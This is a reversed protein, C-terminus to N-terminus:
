MIKGTHALGLAREAWVDPHVLSDMGWGVGEKGWALSVPKESVAGGGTVM